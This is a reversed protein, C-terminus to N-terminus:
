CQSNTKLANRKVSNQVRWSNNANNKWIESRCSPLFYNVHTFFCMRVKYYEVDLSMLGQGCHCRLLKAILTQGKKEWLNSKLQADTWGRASGLNSLIKLLTEELQNFCKRHLLIKALHCQDNKCRMRIGGAPGDIHHPLPSGSLHPSIYIPNIFPWLKLVKVFVHFTHCQATPKRM